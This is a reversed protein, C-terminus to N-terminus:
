TNLKFKVDIYLSAEETLFCAWLKEGYEKPFSQLIYLIRLANESIMLQIQM